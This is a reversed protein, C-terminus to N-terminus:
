LYIYTARNNWVFINNKTGDAWKVIYNGNVVEIKKISWLSDSDQTGIPAYGEYIINSTTNDIRLRELAPASQQQRANILDGLVQEIDPYPTGNEKYIDKLLVSHQKDVTWIDLTQTHTSYRWKIDSLQYERSNISIKNKSVLVRIM